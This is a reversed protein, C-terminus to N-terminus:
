LSRYADRRHQIHTVTILKEADDIQYIVRYQGIRVRYLQASGQLKVTGAPRPTESLSNLVPDIRRRIDSPLRRHARRASSTLRVSYEHEAM